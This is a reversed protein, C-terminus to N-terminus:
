QRERPHSEEYVKKLREVSVHTYIQTTSLSAHGLLEQVGRLDAGADLMHTAFSHRLCHPTVNPNLGARILFRKLSREVSRPTLSGGRHNMFVPYKGKDMGLTEALAARADMAARLAAFAPRGLPCLREKKGKGRVKVVGGLVGIDAERLGTLESVRLGASYLVELIAIDRLAAYNLWQRKEAASELKLAEALEQGPADLLRLVDPASLVQPLFRGRKPTQLGMFPNAAVGGERTLFKYFSRLSSVKRGITAPAAHDKQMQVVFRRAAYQDVDDWPLPSSRDVGWLLVAFQGIDMLYNAVTHGSANRETELYAIFQRVRTDGSVQDSVALTM